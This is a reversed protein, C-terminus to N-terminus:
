STPRCKWFSALHIFSNTLNSTPSPSSKKKLKPGSSPTEPFRVCYPIFLISVAIQYQNGALGLDSEMDYLRANGINVIARRGDTSTNVHM